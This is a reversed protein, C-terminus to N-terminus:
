AWHSGPAQHTVVGKKVGVCTAWWNGEKKWFSKQKTKSAAVVSQDNVPKGNKAGFNPINQGSKNLIHPNFSVIWSKLYKM